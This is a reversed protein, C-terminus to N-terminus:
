QWSKFCSDYECVDSATADISPHLFEILLTEGDRGRQGCAKQGWTPPGPGAWVRMGCDARIM